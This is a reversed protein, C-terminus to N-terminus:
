IIEGERIWKKIEKLIEEDKDEHLAFLLNLGGNNYIFQLKKNQCKFDRGSCQKCKASFGTKNEIFYNKTLPYYYGCGECRKWLTDHKISTDRTICLISWVDYNSIDPTYSLYIPNEEDTNPVGFFNKAAALIKQLRNTTRPTTPKVKQKSLLMYMGETNIFWAKNTENNVGIPQYELVRMHINYREDDRYTSLNLRKFLITKFFYQMPYWYEGDEDKLRIQKIGCIYYIEQEM